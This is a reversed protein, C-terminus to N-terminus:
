RDLRAVALCMLPEDELGLWIPKLPREAVQIARVGENMAASRLTKQLNEGIDKIWV